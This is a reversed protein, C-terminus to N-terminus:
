AKTPLTLHTYSVAVLRDGQETLDGLVVGRDADIVVTGCPVKIIRDSGRAGTMNKPGGREGNGARFVREYRFDLLTQLDNTAEL